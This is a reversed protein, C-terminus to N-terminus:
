LIPLAGRVQVRATAGTHVVFTIILIHQTTLIVPNEDNKFFLTHNSEQPRETLSLGEFLPLHLTQHSCQKQVLHPILIGKHLCKKSIGLPPADVRYTLYAFYCEFLTPLSLFWGIMQFDPIKFNPTSISEVLSSLSTLLMLMRVYMCVYM